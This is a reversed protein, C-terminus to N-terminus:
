RCLVVCCLFVFVFMWAELPIGVLSGLLWAPGTCVLYVSFSKADECSKYINAYLVHMITSSIFWWSIPVMFVSFVYRKREEFPKFGYESALLFKLHTIIFDLSRNDKIVELLVSWVRVWLETDQGRKYLNANMM